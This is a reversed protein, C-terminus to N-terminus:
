DKCMRPDLMASVMDSTSPSTGLAAGTSALPGMPMLSAMWSTSLCTLVVLAQGDLSAKLLLKEQNIMSSSTHNQNLKKKTEIELEGKKVGTRVGAGLCQDRVAQRPAQPLRGLGQVFPLGEETDEGLVAVLGHVLLQHSGQALLVADGEDLYSKKM